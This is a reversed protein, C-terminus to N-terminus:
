EARLTYEADGYQSTARLIVTGEGAEVVALAEGYYTDSTDTLYGRPNYPCGNGFGLLKGNEVSLKIEGRALPKGNGKGDTYRLRVFLLEGQKVQKAEPEISLMTEEGATLLSTKCIEKGAKDYGIATVEGSRYVTRFSVKCHKNRKSGVCEGNVFLKVFPARSFVYVLASHGDCGNWSWSEFAHIKRWASTMHGEGSHDAPQVAIAIDRKGYVVQTYATHGQSQGTIDLCGSGATLWGETKEFDLAYDAYDLSGLGVEGIYDIGAWAFDGIIRPNDKALKMFKDADTIFTESGLIFRKKYKKLDKKYRNIGYNYGAVDMNAFAKKTAWDCPPIRSFVKMTDSGFLGALNNFFESGVAKKKKPKVAMEEEQAKKESYFGFGISALFNFFINVGCTVGRTDDFRHFTDTLTKTFAIGEKQSTESVENGSSYLVVSPHNFDKEVMAAIDREYNSLVFSAYDYKNKHIYWMDAYEDILYMGLKDCASLLAKSCPHHSSRIANYGAEKLLRVKREAVQDYEKAGLIGNDAHICCGKLIRRKGNVTFGKEPDLEVKRIGFSVIEEDEGFRVRCSYLQPHDEDWLTIDKLSLRLSAGKGVSFASGEALMKTGDEVSVSVTGAGVTKVKVEVEPPDFSLTKIRVGEREIRKDKKGSLLWVPRYIGSGTYWRSNPQDSNKVTVVLHNEEQLFDTLDVFFGIYGNQRSALEVGNCFVRCGHYVGEFELEYVNERSFDPIRFTKEYVYDGGKFFGNHHGHASFVRAEELMADHPLTVARREEENAKGFKWNDNFAIRKM